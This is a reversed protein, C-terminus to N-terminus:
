MNNNINGRRDIGGFYVPMATEKFRSKLSGGLFDCLENMDMNTTIVTRKGNDYRASLVNSDFVKEIQADDGQGMEDLILYPITYYGKLVDFEQVSSKFNRSTRILPCVEYKCSIYKGANMGLKSRNIMSACASYSKGRGFDGILVMTTYKSKEECFERITKSTESDDLVANSFKEPINTQEIFSTTNFEKKDNQKIDLLEEADFTPCNM